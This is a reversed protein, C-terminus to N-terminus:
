TFQSPHFNSDRGQALLCYIVLALPTTKQKKQKQGEEKENEEEEL